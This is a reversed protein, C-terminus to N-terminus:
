SPGVFDIVTQAALLPFALRGVEERIRALFRRGLESQRGGFTMPGDLLVGDPDVTHMLNVIGVGLYRATDMVIEMALPDGAEAEAALLECDLADGSALRRSLSSSRGADLAERTRDLLATESCYADLHGRQGCPCTRADAGCHIIAHGCPSDLVLDGLVLRCGIERGLTLLVLSHFQRTDTM